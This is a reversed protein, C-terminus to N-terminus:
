EKGPHACRRRLCHCSLRAVILAQLEAQIQTGLQFWFSLDGNDYQYFNPPSAPARASGFYFWFVFIELSPERSWPMSHNSLPQSSNADSPAISPTTIHIHPRTLDYLTFAIASRCSAAKKKLHASLRSPELWAGLKSCSDRLMYPSEAYRKKLGSAPKNKGGSGSDADFPCAIRTQRLRRQHMCRRTPTLLSPRQYAWGLCSICTTM